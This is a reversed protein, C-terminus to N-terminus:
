NFLDFLSHNEEIRRKTKKYYEEDLEFGIYRRNTNKCAICTSGSGMCNDLVIEKENTYTKILYELLAIPKQTPHIRDKENDYYLINKPYGTYKQISDKKIEHYVDCKNRDKKNIKPQIKILDQPNYTAPVLKPRPESDYEKKLVEYPKQFFGTAQLIQYSKETPILFQKGYTFYHSGSSHGLMANVQKLSLGSKKLEDNLYNRVGMYKGANDKPPKNLIFVNIDEVCRMPQKKANLAATVNNKIWYWKHSYEKVNSQVLYSTFPENSFLVCNGNNKLVRHYQEWLKDLPLVSDWHCDTIGYPLDCLIMDISHNPIEKLLELCNGQKIYSEM